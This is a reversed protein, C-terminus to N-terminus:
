EETVSNSPAEARKSTDPDEESSDSDYDSSSDFAAAPSCGETFSTHPSSSSSSSSSSPLSLSIASLEATVDPTDPGSSPASDGNVVKNDDAEEALDKTTTPSGPLDAQDPPPLRDRQVTQDVPTPTAM